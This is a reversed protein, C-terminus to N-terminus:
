AQLQRAADAKAKEERQLEASELIARKMEPDCSWPIPYTMNQIELPAREIYGLEQGLRIQESTIKLAANIAGIRVFKDKATKGTSDLMLTMAEKNLLELRANLITALQKNQDVSKAWTQMYANDHYISKPSVGFEKSIAEVVVNLNTGMALLRLMRLRRRFVAEKM